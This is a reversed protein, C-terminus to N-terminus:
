IAGEIELLRKKLDSGWRYDGISGDSRVVRHCPVLIAFKNNAMVSGVARAAGPYGAREALESYCITEGCNTLLLESLVSNKFESTSLPKPLTFVEPLEPEGASKELWSSSLRSNEYSIKLDYGETRLSNLLSNLTSLNIITM